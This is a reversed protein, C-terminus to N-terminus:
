AAEPGEGSASQEKAAKWFLWAATLWFALFLSTVAGAFGWGSVLAIVAVLAQAVAMALLARAMGMARFRAVAAGVAGVGLVGYFMLNAPDDESGIVGVALNAWVLIFAGALAVGVGARYAGNAMTRAALEYTLGVGAVLAGAVVFDGPGWNVEDTFQMALLPLLLLGAAAGWGAMRWRNWRRPRSGTEANGTM